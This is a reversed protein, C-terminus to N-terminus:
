FAMEGADGDKGKTSKKRVHLVLHFSFLLSRSELIGHTLCILLFERPLLFWVPLLFFSLDTGM